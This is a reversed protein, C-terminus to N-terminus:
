EIEFGHIPKLHHPSSYLIQRWLMTDNVCLHVRFRACLACWWCLNNKKYIYYVNSGKDTQMPMDM